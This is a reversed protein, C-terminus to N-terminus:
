PILPTANTYAKDVHEEKNAIIVSETNPVCNNVNAKLIGGM